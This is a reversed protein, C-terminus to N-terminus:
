HDYTEGPTIPTAHNPIYREVTGGIKEAWYDADERRDDRHVSFQYGDARRVLWCPKPERPELVGSDLYDQYTWKGSPRPDVDIAPGKLEHSRSSATPDAPGHRRPM